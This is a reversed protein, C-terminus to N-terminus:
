QLGVVFGGEKYSGFTNSNILWQEKVQWSKPCWLAPTSNRFAASEPVCMGALNEKTQAFNQNNLVFSYSSVSEVQNKSNKYNQWRIKKRKKFNQCM